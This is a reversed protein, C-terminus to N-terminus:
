RMEIAFFANCNVGYGGGYSGGSVGVVQWGNKGDAELERTDWKCGSASSGNLWVMKYEYARAPAANVTGPKQYMRFAIVGLLAAILGLWFNTFRNM